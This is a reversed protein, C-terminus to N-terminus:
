MIANQMTTAPKEVRDPPCFFPEGGMKAHYHYEVEGERIVIRFGPVLAMTYNMGKKPCGLAGSRWDVGVAEWVEFGDASKKFRSAFDAKAADIQEQYSMGGADNDSPAAIGKAEAKADSGSASQVADKDTAQGNQQCAVLLSAAVLTGLFNVKFM